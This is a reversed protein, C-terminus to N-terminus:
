EREGRRGDNAFCFFIFPKSRDAGDLLNRCIASRITMQLKRSEALGASAPQTDVVPPPILHVSEILSSRAPIRVHFLKLLHVRYQVPTVLEPPEGRHGRHRHSQARLALAEGILPVDTAVPFNRVQRHTPAPDLGDHPQPLEMARGAVLEERGSERGQGLSGVGGFPQPTPRGPRRRWRRGTRQRPRSSQGLTTSRSGPASVSPAPPTAGEAPATAPSQRATKSFLRRCNKQTSISGVFLRTSSTSSLRSFSTTTRHICALVPSYPHQVQESSRYVFILPM